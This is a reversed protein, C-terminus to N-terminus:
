IYLSGLGVWSLWVKCKLHDMTYISLADGTDRKFITFEECKESTSGRYYKGMLM